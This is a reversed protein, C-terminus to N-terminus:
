KSSFFTVVGFNLIVPIIISRFPNLCILSSNPCAMPSSANTIDATINIVAESGSLIATQLEAFTSVNVEAWAASPLMLLTTIAFIYRKLMDM